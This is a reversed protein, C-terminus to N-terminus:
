IFTVKGKKWIFFLFSSFFSVQDIKFAEGEYFADLLQSEILITM